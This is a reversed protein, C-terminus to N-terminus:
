RRVHRFNPSYVVRSMELLSVATIAPTAFPAPHFFFGVLFDGTGRITGEPATAFIISNELVSLISITPPMTCKRGGSVIGGVRWEIVGGDNQM